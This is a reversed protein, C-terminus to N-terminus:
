PYIGITFTGVVRGTVSSVGVAFEPLILWSRDGFSGAAADYLSVGVGFEPGISAQGEAWTHALNGPFEYGDSWVVTVGGYVFLWRIDLPYPFVKAGVTAIGFDDRLGGGIAAYLQVESVTVIPAETGAVDYAILIEATEPAPGGFRGGISLRPQQAALSGGLAAVLVFLVVIRKM